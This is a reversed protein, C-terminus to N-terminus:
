DNSEDGFVEKLTAHWRDKNLVVADKWVSDFEVPNLRFLILWNSNVRIKQPISTFKQSVIVISVTGNAVIHRRNYFLKMLSTDHEGQKIDSVVDDLLILINKHTAQLQEESQVGGNLFMKQVRDAYDV